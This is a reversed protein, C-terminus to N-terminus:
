TDLTSFRPKSLHITEVAVSIITGLMSVQDTQVAKVVGPMWELTKSNSCRLDWCCSSYQFLSWMQHRSTGFLAAGASQRVAKDAQKAM